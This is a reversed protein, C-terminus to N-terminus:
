VPEFTTVDVNQAQRKNFDCTWEALLDTDRPLGFHRGPQSKGYETVGAKLTWDNKGIPAALSMSLELTIKENAPIEAVQAMSSSGTIFGHSNLYADLAIREPTDGTNEADLMLVVTKRGEFRYTLENIKVSGSSQEINGSWLTHINENTPAGAFGQGFNYYAFFQYALFALACIGIARVIERRTKM